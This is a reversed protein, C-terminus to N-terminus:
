TRPAMMVRGQVVQLRKPGDRGIFHAYWTAGFQEVRTCRRKSSM